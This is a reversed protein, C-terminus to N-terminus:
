LTRLFDRGVVITLDVIGQEQRSVQVEGVGLMDKVQDALELGSPSSDYTVILTRQYNLRKANGSLLVRFGEGVLRKAVEQGIGPRGNGNLIQVRIESERIAIDGLTQTLFTEVEEADAEYLEGGGPVLTRPLAQSVPLTTVTRAQRDSGALTRLLQGHQEASTDSERLAPAADAVATALADPEGEFTNLLADWFAIHRLGLEVDDGDIGVTYLLRVLFPPPLQQQGPVFILRERQRGAAVRVENPVDISIPGVEEFLVLADKDSLEVYRDITVGLLNETAVLLLPIGGTTLADGVAQLGRGPIETATHAPIYIVAGQEEREDWSLLTMWITRDRGGTASEHTGVVLTTLVLDEGSVTPSPTPEPTPALTNRAVAIAIIAAIIGVIVGGSGASM